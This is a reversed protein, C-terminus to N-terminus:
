HGIKSTPLVTQAIIYKKDINDPYLITKQCPPYELAKSLDSASFDYLNFAFIPCEVNNLFNSAYTLATPLYKALHVGNKGGKILGENLIHDVNKPSTVHFYINRGKSLPHSSLQDYTWGNKYCDYYDLFLENALPTM